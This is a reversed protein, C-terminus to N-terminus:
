VALQDAVELDVRVRCSAVSLSNPSRSPSFFGAMVDDCSFALMSSVRARMSVSIARMLPPTPTLLVILSPRMACIFAAMSACRTLTNCRFSAWSSIQGHQRGVNIRRLTGVVADVHTGVLGLELAPGRLGVEVHQVRGGFRELRRRRARREVHKSDSNTPVSAPRPRPSASPVTRDGRANQGPRRPAPSRCATARCARACAWRAGTRACALLGFCDSSRQWSDPFRRRCEGAIRHRNLRHLRRDHRM